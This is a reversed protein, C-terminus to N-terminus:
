QGSRLGNLALDLAKELIEELSPEQEYSMIIGTVTAWLINAMAWTDVQRFDGCDSGQQIIDSVVRMCDRATDMCEKLLEPSVRERFDPQSTLFMIRFYKRNHRYFIFYAQMVLALLQDSPLSLRVVQGFKQKLLKMGEAMIAVYLEEKSKFYLYLTGKALDCSEAIAEMTAMKFGKEFFVERAATLIANRRELHERQKRQATKLHSDNM